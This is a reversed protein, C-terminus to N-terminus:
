ETRLLAERTKTLELEFQTREIKAKDTKISLDMILKDKDLDARAYDDKLKALTSELAKRAIKEEELNRVV